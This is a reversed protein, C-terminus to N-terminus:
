GAAWRPVIVLRAPVVAFGLERKHEDAGRGASLRQAGAAVAYEVFRGYCDFYLHGRGGEEPPVSAWWSLQPRTPHHLFTGAALLRGDAQTYTLTSVDDHATFAAFYSPPLPARRDIRGTRAVVHRNVMRALQDADVDTRARGIVVTLDEDIRRRRRRLAKRRSPGLGALWDDVTGLTLETDGATERLLAGRRAVASVEDVPVHRYVFGTTGVGLRRLAAREYARMLGARAEAPVDASFHWTPRGNGEGPLRVDVVLPERRRRPPRSVRVGRYVAGVAGVIKEERRFVALMVPAWSTSAHHLAQYDWTAALNERRRFDTWGPPESDRLPDRLEVGIM